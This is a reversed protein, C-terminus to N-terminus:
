STTKALCRVLLEFQQFQEVLRLLHLLRECLLV